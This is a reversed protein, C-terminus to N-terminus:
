LDQHLHRNGRGASHFSSSGGLLKGNLFWVVQCTRAGDTCGYGATFNTFKATLVAKPSNASISATGTVQVQLGELGWDVQDVLEGTPWSWWATAARCWWAEPM